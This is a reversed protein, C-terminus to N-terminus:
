LLVQSVKRRATDTCTQSLIPYAFAVTVPFVRLHDRFSKGPLVRKWERKNDITLDPNKNIGIGVSTGTPIRSVLLFENMQTM